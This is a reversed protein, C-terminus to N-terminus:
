AGGAPRFVPIVARIRTGQGPASEFTLRGGLRVAREHMSRLGLHGPFSGHPDFGIGDDTVDLTLGEPDAALRLTVNAAHAHKVTNHLSEQGIRYVAEKVELPVDPERGLDTQVAISHRATLAAAQKSLAAVLGETALSEPRLEFILARMEALGAEALSLVYELPGAAELPARDLLRRATHAGLSIGYLAQSVSDHLERALRQREELAAKGQAEAFLRANEVAVAAQDALAILFDTEAETVPPAPQHYSELTGLARGHYLLPVSVVSDWAADHLFPHLPAYRADGLFRRRVDHVIQTERTRFARLMPADGGARWTGEMAAAYGDPLGWCSALRVTEGVEDILVVACAAASTAQVVNRALAHLTAELSGAFAVNSAIQALAANKRALEQSREYLRANELTIAAQSAVAMVLAAHRPTYYGPQDHNIRLLGVVHDKVLLPVGLWARAYGFIQGIRGGAQARFRHAMPSDGWIDDIIIPQRAHLVEQYVGAEEPPFRGPLAQTAHTSGRIELVVFSGKELAFIAAGTYGVLKKLQDFVLNLLPKLELTSAMSNSVELLTTLERTREDVRQELMQYAQVRDTIDRVVALIHPRGKHLFPVGHVEVPLTSGDKRVNVAQTEFQGGARVTEVFERFSDLYDPHVFTRPDRGIFEEYSYGHMRCAAPNAEVVIGELSNIILADSTAEFVGRYQAEKQQMLEYARMRETADTTVDIVGIVEGNEVLPTFVADWYSVLDGSQLRLADQRVTEGALARALLPAVAEQAEPVLDFFGVGPRVSVDHAATYRDIFDAWTPNCRRLVLDRDFIAIGMPMRDFLIELLGWQNSLLPDADFTGAARDGATAPRVEFRCHEAGTAQCAREVCVLDRRAGLGNVIGALVGASYACVPGTPPEGHRTFMWSEFTSRGRVVARGWPWDLSEVTFEGLGAAQVAAICERVAEPGAEPGAGAGLSRAFAAGSTAGAQQLVIGTLRRGALATLNRRLTWVGGAVDLLAMRAGGLWLTGADEGTHLSDHTLAM